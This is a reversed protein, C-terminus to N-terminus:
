VAKLFFRFLRREALKEEQQVVIKTVVAQFLRYAIRFGFGKANVEGAVKGVSGGIGCCRIIEGLFRFFGGKIM